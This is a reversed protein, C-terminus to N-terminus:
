RGVRGATAPPGPRSQRSARVAPSDDQDNELGRLQATGHTQLRAAPREARRDVQNAIRLRGCAGPARASPVGTSGSDRDLRGVREATVAGDRGVHVQCAIANEKLHRVQRALCGSHGDVALRSAPQDAFRAAQVNRGVDVRTPVLHSDNGHSGLGRPQHEIPSLCTGSVPVAHKVHDVTKRDIGLRGAM